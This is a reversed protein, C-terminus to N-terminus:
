CCKRGCVNAAAQLPRESATALNPIAEPDGIWYVVHWTGAGLSSLIVDGGNQPALCLRLDQRFDLNTPGSGCHIQDLGVHAICGARRGVQALLQFDGQDERECTDLYCGPIDDGAEEPYGKYRSMKCRGALTASVIYIVQGTKINITTSNGTSVRTIVSHAKPEKLTEKMTKQIGVVCNKCAMVLNDYAFFEAETQLEELRAVDIKTKPRIKGTRMFYLVDDFVDPDRDIYLRPALGMSPPSSDDAPGDEGGDDDGRGRKRSGALVAGTDGLLAAFFASGSSKLTTTTTEFLRGGVNVAIRDSATPLAM